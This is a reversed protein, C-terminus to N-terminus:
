LCSMLVWFTGWTARIQMGQVHYRLEPFTVNICPKKQVSWPVGSMGPCPLVWLRPVGHVPSKSLLEGQISLVRFGYAADMSPCRVRGGPVEPSLM